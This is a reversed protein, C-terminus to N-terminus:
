DDDNNNNNNNCPILIIAADDDCRGMQGEVPVAELEEGFLAAKFLAVDFDNQLLCSKVKRFGILTTDRLCVFGIDGRMISVLDVQQGKGQGARSHQATSHQATSHQATSHQASRQGSGRGPTQGPGLIHVNNKQLALNSM